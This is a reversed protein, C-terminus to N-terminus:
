KDLKQKISACIDGVNQFSIMEELTFKIFFHQELAHLLLLHQVSDWAAIDQATNSEELKLTSDEFVERFIAEVEPLINYDHTM